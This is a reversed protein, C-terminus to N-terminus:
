DRWTAIREHGNEEPAEVRILKIASNWRFESVETLEGIPASLIANIHKVNQIKETSRDEISKM